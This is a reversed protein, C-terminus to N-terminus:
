FRFRSFDRKARPDLRRALGDSLFTLGSVALFLALGPILAVHPADLLHSRGASVMAGWSPAPPQIGLGLFSLSAEAVIAGAMGLSAQVLLLPLLNPLLHHAVLRAPSAGLSRAALVFEQEKLQLVQARALRAYSVWGMAVLAWIVHELAPGLVAVLAIALLLGPFALFVEAVRMLGADLWGGALGCASGLATGISASLLVVVAGVALSVRAGQLLRSGIDRGLEDLGLLHGASPAALRQDLWQQAPDFPVLWPALAALLVLGGVVAAGFRLEAEAGRRGPARLRAGPTL